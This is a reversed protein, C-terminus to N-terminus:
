KGLIRKVILELGQSGITFVGIASLRRVLMDIQEPSFDQGQLTMVMYGLLPIMYTYAIVDGVFSGGRLVTALFKKFSTQLKKAKKFGDRFEGSIGSEQIKNMIEQTVKKNESWLIVVTGVVILIIEDQSLQPFRGELYQELPRALGGIMASFTLLIKANIGFRDVVRKYLDASYDITDSYIDKLVDSIGETLLVKTQSESILIDM